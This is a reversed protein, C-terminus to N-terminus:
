KMKCTICIEDSGSFDIFKNKCEKCIKTETILNLDSGIGLTSALTGSIGVDVLSSWSALDEGSKITISGIDGITSISTDRSKKYEGIQKELKEKQTRKINLRSITDKLNTM